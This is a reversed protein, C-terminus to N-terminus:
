SSVTLVYPNGIYDSLSSEFAKGYCGYALKGSYLLAELEPMVNKPMYPKFIPIM